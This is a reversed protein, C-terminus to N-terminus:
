DKISVLRCNHATSNWIAFSVDKDFAEPVAYPNLFFPESKTNYQAHMRRHFELM